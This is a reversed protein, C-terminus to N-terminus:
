SRISTRRLTPLHFSPSFVLTVPSGFVGARAYFDIVALRIEWYIKRRHPFEHHKEELLLFNDVLFDGNIKDAAPLDSLEMGLVKIVRGGGVADGERKVILEESLNKDTGFSGQVVIGFFGIFFSRKIDDMAEQM